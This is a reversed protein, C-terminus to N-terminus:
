APAGAADRDLDVFIDGDQLLVKYTRLALV